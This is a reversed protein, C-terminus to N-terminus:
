NLTPIRDTVLPPPEFQPAKASDSGGASIGGSRSGREGAM